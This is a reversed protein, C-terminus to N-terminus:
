IFNFIFLLLVVVICVPISVWWFNLKKSVSLFIDKSETAYDLAFFFGLASFIMAFLTIYSNSISSVFIAVTIATIITFLGLKLTFKRVGNNDTYNESIVKERFKSYTM